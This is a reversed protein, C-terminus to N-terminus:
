AKLYTTILCDNLFELKRGAIYKVYGSSWRTM